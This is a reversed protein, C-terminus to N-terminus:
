KDYKEFIILTGIALAILVVCYLAITSDNMTMDLRILKSGVISKKGSDRSMIMLGNEYAERYTANRGAIYGGIFTSIILSIIFAIVNFKM